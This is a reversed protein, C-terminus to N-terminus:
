QNIFAHHNFKGLCGSASIEKGNELNTDSIKSDQLGLPMNNSSSLQKSSDISSYNMWRQSLLSWTSLHIELNPTVQMSNLM